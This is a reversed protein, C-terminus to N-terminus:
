EGPFPPPIPGPHAGPLEFVLLGLTEIFFLTPSPLVDISDADITTQLTAKVDEVQARESETLVESGLIGDVLVMADRGTEANMVPPGIYEFRQDTNGVFAMSRAMYQAADLLTRYDITEAEDDETHYFSMGPTVFWMAPIPMDASHFEDQDSAFVQIIDRHIFVVDNLEAFDTTQRWFELLDPSREAGALVIASYDPLVPRGLPDGSIGVVIDDLGVPSMALWQEAGRLGNEEDDSFIFITSRAPAAGEELFARAIELGAAVGGANDFAGNFCDSGDETVGLHDYHAIYVVYEDALAPDSGQVLGVLDWGTEVANPVVNGEADHMFRTPHPETPYDFLYGDRGFPLLGIEEMRQAIYDRSELHGPSGPIRGGRADDALYVIDERMQEPSIGDIAAQQTATVQAERPGVDGDADPLEGSGDDEVDPEADPAGSQNSDNTCAFVLAAALLVCAARWSLCPLM